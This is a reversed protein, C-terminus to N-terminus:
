ISSDVLKCVKSVSDLTSPFLWQHTIARVLVRDDLAIM